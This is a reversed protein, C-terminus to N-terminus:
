PSTRLITIAAAIFAALSIAAGAGLGDPPVNQPWPQPQAGAIEHLGDAAIFWRVGPLQPPSAFSRSETDYGPMAQIRSWPQLVDYSRVDRVGDVSGLNPPYVDPAAAILYQRQPDRRLVEQIAPPTPAIASTDIVPDYGYAFFAMEAAIAAIIVRKRTTLAAVLVCIAPVAIRRWAVAQFGALYGALRAEYVDSALRLYHRAQLMAVGRRAIPLAVAPVALVVAVGLVIAALVAIVIRRRPEIAEGLAFCVFFAFVFGLRETAAASFSLLSLALAISGIIMGRRAQRSLRPWAGLVMLLVVAGVYGGSRENFNEAAPQSLGSLDIEGALPSGLFGPLITAPIVVLRVHAPRHAREALMESKSLAILFPVLQVACLAFGIAAPLLFKWRREWFLFIAIAIMGFCLTEPHGAATALAATALTGIVNGRMAFAAFWPLVAFVSTHPFLLWVTMYGCTMYVFGSVFSRSFFWMGLGAFFLKLFISIAWGRDGFLLRPWTLPFLLATEPNAFLHAGDGAFRNRWPFQGAGLLRRIEVDWAHYEFVPDSLLKNSVIVRQNPDNKWALADRPVDLPLMVRHPLFGAGTLLAAVVAFFIAATLWPKM